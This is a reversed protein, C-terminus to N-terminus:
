VQKVELGRLRTQEANHLDEQKLLEKAEAYTADDVKKLKTRKRSKPRSVLRYSRKKKMSTETPEVVEDQVDLEESESSSADVEIVDTPTFPKTPLDELVKLASVFESSSFKKSVEM